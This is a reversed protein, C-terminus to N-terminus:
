LLTFINNLRDLNVSVYTQKRWMAMANKMTKRDNREVFLKKSLSLGLVHKWRAWNQMVLRKLGRQATEDALM